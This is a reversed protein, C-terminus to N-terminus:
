YLQRIFLNSDITDQPISMSDATVVHFVTERAWAAKVM